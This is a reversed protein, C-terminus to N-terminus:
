VRVIQSLVGSATQFNFFDRRGFSKAASFNSDISKGMVHSGPSSVLGKAQHALAFAVLGCVEGYKLSKFFLLFLLFFTLSLLYIICYRCSSQCLSIRCVGGYHIATAKM